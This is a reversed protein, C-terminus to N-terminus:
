VTFLFCKLFFNYSYYNFISILFYFLCDIILLLYYISSMSLHYMSFVIGYITSITYYIIFLFYIIIQPM